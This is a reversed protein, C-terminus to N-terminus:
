VDVIFIIVSISQLFIQFFIADGSFTNRGDILIHRFIRNRIKGVAHALIFKHLKSGVHLFRQSVAEVDFFKMTNDKIGAGAWERKQFLFQHFFTRLVSKRNM